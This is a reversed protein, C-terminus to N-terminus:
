DAGFKGKVQCSSIPLLIVRSGKFYGAKANM